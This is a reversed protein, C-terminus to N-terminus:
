GLVLMMASQMLLHQLHAPPFIGWLGRVVMEAMKKDVLNQCNDLASNDVNLYLGMLMSDLDDMSFAPNNAKCVVLKDLPCIDKIYNYDMGVCKSFDKGCRDDSTFCDKVEQTCVDVRMAALKDTVYGWIMPEMRECSDIQVKCFSRAMEPRSLCSDMTDVGKGEIDDKCAKQICSSIDTLCSQRMKSEANLEAVKITPAAERLFDTWVNDRVVVCQNLVKECINRKASMIEMTSDTIDFKSINEVKTGATSKAKNNQMNESAITSVCNTWDKGCADETQMCKKFEVMCTGRDFKNASAFSEKLANRVDSNASALEKDAAVQQNDVSNAFAKCDSVIQRSYMQQLFQVDKTCSDPMRSLCLDNAGTFLASGTKDSLSDIDEEFVEKDEGSYANNDFIAMLDKKKNAKAQADSVGDVSVVNGNENYQREGNFIIDAQAGAQIKQVEITKINNAKDLQKKIDALRQEYNANEDSCACTGGSTNDTICFQDMCGYYTDYCEQSYLGTATVKARVTTGSQIVSQGKSSRTAVAAPAAFHMICFASTYLGIGFIKRIM